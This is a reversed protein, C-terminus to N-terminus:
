NTLCPMPVQSPITLAFSGTGFTFTYDGAPLPETQCTAELIRCDATCTGQDIETWAAHTTIQLLTGQAAVSCSVDQNRTCSSSLCVDVLAFDLTVPGDAVFVQPTGTTTGRACIRGRNDVLEDHSAVDTCAALLM